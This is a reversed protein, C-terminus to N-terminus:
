RMLMGLRFMLNKQPRLGAYGQADEPAYLRSCMVKILHPNKPINQTKQYEISFSPYAILDILFNKEETQFQYLYPLKESRSTSSQPDV